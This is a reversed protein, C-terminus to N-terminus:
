TVLPLCEIQRKGRGVDRLLECGKLLRLLMIGKICTLYVWSIEHRFAHSSPKSCKHAESFVLQVSISTTIPLPFHLLHILAFTILNADSSSSLSDKNETYIDIFHSSISRSSLSKLNRPLKVRTEIFIDIVITELKIFDEHSMLYFSIIFHLENVICSTKHCWWCNDLNWEYKVVVEFVEQFFFFSGSLKKFFLQLILSVTETM